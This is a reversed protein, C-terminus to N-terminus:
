MMGFAVRWLHLIIAPRMMGAMAVVVADTVPRTISSISLTSWTRLYQVGTQSWSSSSSSSPKFLKSSSHAACTLASTGFVAGHMDRRKLSFFGFSGSTRQLFKWLWFEDANHKRKM